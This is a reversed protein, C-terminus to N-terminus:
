QLGRDAVPGLVASSCVPAQYRAGRPHHQEIIERLYSTVARTYHSTTALHAHGLLLQITRLDAGGVYLHTAFARRLTHATLLPMGAREAYGKIRKQLASYSLHGPLCSSPFLSRDGRTPIAALRRRRLLRPHIVRLYYTVWKAASENMVVLREKRGKGCVIARRDNPWVTHVQLNLLEHSRVGTAYLLELMVRDQIGDVTGRDPLDLLRQIQSYTPVFQATRSGPTRVPATLVLAPNALAHGERQLWAYISRIHWRMVGITRDALSAQDRLFGMLDEPKAQIWDRDLANVRLWTEWSRQVSMSARISNEAYGREFRLFFLYAELAEGPSM